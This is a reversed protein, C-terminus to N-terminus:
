SDSVVPNQTHSAARYEGPTLGTHVCFVHCFWNPNAHGTELAIRKVQWDTTALLQKAKEVRKAAIWRSMREGMQGVFVESLHTPCVDLVSAVKAVTLRPDSLNAAVYELARLVQPHTPSPAIKPGATSEACAATAEEGTIGGPVRKLFEAQSAAFDRVLLEMLDVVRKFESKDLSSPGALKVVALCRNQCVIPIMACIRSHQCTGWHAEPRRKLKALHLQWSEHCYDTSAFELCAPHSPNPAPDEDNPESVALAVAQIDTASMHAFRSIIQDQVLDLLTAMTPKRSVKRKPGPDHKRHLFHRKAM